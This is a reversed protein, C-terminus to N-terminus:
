CGSVTGRKRELSSNFDDMIAAARQPERCWNNEAFIPAPAPAPASVPVQIVVPAPAPAPVSAQAPPPALTYSNWGQRYTPNTKRRYDSIDLRAKAAFCGTTAQGGLTGCYGPQPQSRQGTWWLAGAQYEGSLNTFWSEWAQRDALGQQFDSPEALAPSASLALASAIAAFLRQKIISDNEKQAATM